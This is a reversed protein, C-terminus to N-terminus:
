YNMQISSGATPTKGLTGVSFTNRGPRLTELLVTGFVPKQPCANPKLCKLYAKDTMQMMGLALSMGWKSYQGRQM